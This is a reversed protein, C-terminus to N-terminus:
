DLQYRARPGEEQELRNRKLEAEAIQEARRPAESLAEPVLEAERARETRRTATPAILTLQTM